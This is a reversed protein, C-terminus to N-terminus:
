PIGPVGPFEPPIGPVGYKIIPKMLVGYVVIAFFAVSAGVFITKRNTWEEHKGAGIASIPSQPPISFTKPSDHQTGFPRLMERGCLCLSEEDWVPNLIVNISLTEKKLGATGCKM